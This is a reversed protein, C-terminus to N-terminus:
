THIKRLLPQLILASNKCIKYAQCIHESTIYM